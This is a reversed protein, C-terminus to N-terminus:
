REGPLCLGTISANTIRLIYYIEHSRRGCCELSSSRKSAERQAGHPYDLRSPQRPVLRGYAAIIHHQGVALEPLTTASESTLTRILKGSLLRPDRWKAASRDLHCTTPANEKPASRSDQVLQPCDPLLTRILQMQPARAQAPASARMCESPRIPGASATGKNCLRRRPHKRLSYLGRQTLFNHV